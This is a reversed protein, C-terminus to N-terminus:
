GNFMELTKEMDAQAKSELSAYKSQFNEPKKCCEAIIDSLKGWNFSVALDYCKSDLILRLMEASDDDRTVKTMLNVDIYAAAVTDVSERALAELMYGTFDADTNTAPVSIAPCVWSAVQNRYGEQTEDMKPYPLVGFDDEMSRYRTITYLSAPYIMIQNNKMMASAGLWQDPITTVMLTLTNDNMLKGIRDFIKQSKEGGMVIRPAGASDVECMRGGLAFYWSRGVSWDTAIGWLDGSDLVSDGNLDRTVDSGLETMRDVTWSGDRVYDYFDGLDYQKALAKNYYVIYSLDDDFMSIDGSIAYLRGYLTLDRKLSRDWWPQDLELWPLSLCDVVMDNGAMQFSADMYPEIIDYEDSGAQIAKKAAAAADSVSTNVIRVNYKEEAATNRDRVADNIIDGSLEEDYGFDLYQFWTGPDGRTYALVRFERGGCDKIELAPVAPETQADAANETGAATDNNGSANNVAPEAGGGCAAFSFSVSCLIIGAFFKLNKMM